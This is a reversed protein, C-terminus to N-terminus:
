LIIEQSTESFGTTEGVEIITQSSNADYSFLKAMYVRNSSDYEFYAGGLITTVYNKPIIINEYDATCFVEEKTSYFYFESNGSM